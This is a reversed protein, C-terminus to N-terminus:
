VGASRLYHMALAKQAQEISKFANKLHARRLPSLQEPNIYNSGSEGRKIQTVQNELKLDNLLLWAEILSTKLPLQLLSEGTANFREITGAILNQESLAVIRALDNILAIGQHKIDLENEHEGSSKVIFARFFGLPPKSRLANKTMHMFFLDSNKLMAALRAELNDLWHSPGYIVRLDFFISANLLAEPEPTSIWQQFSRQWGEVTKRWNPNSAMIDGPCLVYGFADLYGCVTKTFASFYVDEEASPTRELILGNDQDSAFSQEKRAQSGFSLWAFQMPAEGHDILAMAIAKRVFGDGIVALSEGIEHPSVDAKIWHGLLHPVEQQLKAVAEVTKERFIRDVFHVISVSHARVIDSATIVGIPRGNKMVPLHHIGTNSMLLQAELVASEFSITTPSMTAIQNVSLSIDVGKAVVRNRLDRDTVIGVLQDSEMLLLCSVKNDRMISAAQQITDFESCAILKNQLLSEVPQTHQVEIRDSQTVELSSSARYSVLKEFFYRVKAQSKLLRTFFEHPLRYVLSDEISFVGLNESNDQLLTTVGFFEGEGLRDVLNDREDLIDFAGSRILYVCENIPVAKAERKPIYEIELQRAVDLLVSDPMASFPLTVALFDIIDKLDDASALIM